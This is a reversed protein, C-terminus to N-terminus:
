AEGRKIWAPLEAPVSTCGHLKIQDAIGQSEWRTWHLGSNTRLYDFAVTWDKPAAILDIYLDVPKSKPAALHPAYERMVRGVTEHQEYLRGRLETLADDIAAFHQHCALTVEAQSSDGAQASAVAHEVPALAILLGRIADAVPEGTLPRMEETGSMAAHMYAAGHIEHFERSM